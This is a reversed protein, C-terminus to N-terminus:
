TFIQNLQLVVTVQLKRLHMDVAACGQVVVSLGHINSLMTWVKFHCVLLQFSKNALQIYQIFLVHSVDQHFACVPCHKRNLLPADVDSTLSAQPLSVVNRPLSALAGM